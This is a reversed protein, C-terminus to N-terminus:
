GSNLLFHFTHTLSIVYCLWSLLLILPVKLTADLYPGAVIEASLVVVFLSKRHVSVYPQVERLVKVFKEDLEEESGDGENTQDCGRAVFETKQRMVEFNSVCSRTRGLRGIRVSPGCNFVQHWTHGRSLWAGGHSQLSMPTKSRCAAM